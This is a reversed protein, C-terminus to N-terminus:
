RLELQYSKYLHKKKKRKGKQRKGTTLIQELGLYLVCFINMLLNGIQRIFIYPFTLCAKFSLAFTGQKTVSRMGRYCGLNKVFNPTNAQVLLFGAIWFDCNKVGSWIINISCRRWQKPSSTSKLLIKIFPAQKNLGLAKDVSNNFKIVSKFIWNKIYVCIILRRVNWKNILIWLWSCTEAINLCGWETYLQIFVIYV